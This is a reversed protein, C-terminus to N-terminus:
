PPFFGMSGVLFACNSCRALNHASANRATQSPTSAVRLEVCASARPFRPWPCRGPQANSLPCARAAPRRRGGVSGRNRQLGRGFVGQWCVESTREGREIEGQWRGRRKVPADLWVLGCVRLVRQPPACRQPWLRPRSHRQHTCPARGARDDSSAQLYPAATEQMTCKQILVSRVALERKYYSFNTAQPISETSYVSIRKKM